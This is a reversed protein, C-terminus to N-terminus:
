YGLDILKVTQTDDIRLNDDYLDIVFVGTLEKVLRTILDREWSLEVTRNGPVAAATESYKDYFDVVLIGTKKDYYRIKPLHPRLSQYQALKKIRRVELSTHFRGDPDSPFKVVLDAGHIRFARRYAGSGISELKLGLKQFDTM